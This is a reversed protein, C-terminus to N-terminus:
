GLGIRGSCSSAVHRGLLLRHLHQVSLDRVTHGETLYLIQLFPFLYALM